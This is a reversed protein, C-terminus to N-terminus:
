RRCPKLGLGLLVAASHALLLVVVPYVEYFARWEDYFGFLVTFSALPVFMWLADRLFSPKDRWRHFVLLVVAVCVLFVPIPYPELARINHDLFHFEVVGGPNGRYLFEVVARVAMYIGAQAALLRRFLRREMRESSFFHIAFVMTLLVATEKNLCAALFVLIFPRWRRRVMLGLGLTFLLLVAPDYVYNCYRFFSQVGLLAVITTVELFRSSASYVGNFLYRFAFAFGAFSLYMLVLIVVFEFAYELEWKRKEFVRRVFGNGALTEDLSERAREPVAATVARTVGPLLVRCVFPRHARGYIMDPVNSRNYHNIGPERLFIYFVAAALVLYLIVM